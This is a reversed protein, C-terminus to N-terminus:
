KSSTDKDFRIYYNHQPWSLKLDKRMKHKEGRKRVVWTRPSQNNWQRIFIVEEWFKQLVDARRLICRGNELSQVSWNNREHTNQTWLELM